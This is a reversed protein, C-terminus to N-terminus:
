SIYIVKPVNNPLFDCSPHFCCEKLFIAILLQYDVKVAALSTFLLRAPLWALDHIDHQVSFNNVFSLAHKHQRFMLPCFPSSSMLRM